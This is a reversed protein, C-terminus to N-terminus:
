SIPNIALLTTCFIAILLALEAKEEWGRVDCVKSKMEKQEM